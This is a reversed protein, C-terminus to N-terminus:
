QVSKVALQMVAEQSLEDKELMGTMYGEHMVYVRDCM